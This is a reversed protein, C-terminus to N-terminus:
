SKLFIHFEIRLPQLEKKGSQNVIKVWIPGNQPGGFTSSKQDSLDWSAYNLADPEQFWFVTFGCGALIGLHFVIAGFREEFEVEHCSFLFLEHRIIIVNAEVM